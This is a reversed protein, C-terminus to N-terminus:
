KFIRLLMGKISSLESDVHEIRNRFEETTLYDTPDPDPGSQESYVVAGIDWPRGAMNVAVVNNPWVSSADLGTTFQHSL